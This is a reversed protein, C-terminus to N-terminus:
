EVGGPAFVGAKRLETEMAEIAALLAGAGSYEPHRARVKPAFETVLCAPCLNFPSDRLRRRVPPPLTDFYNKMWM